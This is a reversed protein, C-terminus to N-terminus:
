SRLLLPRWSSCSETGHLCGSLVCSNCWSRRKTWITVSMRFYSVMINKQDLITISLLTWFYCILIMINMTVLKIVQAGREGPDLYKTAVSINISPNNSTMTMSPHFDFWLIFIIILIIQEFQHLSVKSSLTIFITIESIIVTQSYHHFHEHHYPIVNIYAHFFRTISTPTTSMPSPPPSYVMPTPPTTMMPPPSRSMQNNTKELVILCLFM